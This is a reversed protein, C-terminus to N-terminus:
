GREATCSVTVAKNTFSALEFDHKAAIVTSWSRDPVPVGAADTSAVVLPLEAAALTVKSSDEALISVGGDAMVTWQGPESLLARAEDHKGQYIVSIFREATQKPWVRWGNIFMMGALLLALGGAAAWNWKKNRRSRWILLSGVVIAVIATGWSGWHAGFHMTM